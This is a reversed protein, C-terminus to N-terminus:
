ATAEKGDCSIDRITREAVEGTVLRLGPWAGDLLAPGPDNHRAVALGTLHQQTKAKM